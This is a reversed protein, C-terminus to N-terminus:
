VILDDTYYNLQVAIVQKSIFTYIFAVYTHRTGFLLSLTNGNPLLYQGWTTLNNFSVYRYADMLCKLRILQISFVIM